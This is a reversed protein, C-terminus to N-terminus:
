VMQGIRIDQRLVLQEGGQIGGGSAKGQRPVLLNQQRVGHTKDALQGVVQDLRKLAGQLLGLVAIDDEM